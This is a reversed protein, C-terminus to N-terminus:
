SLPLPSPIGSRGGRRGGQLRRWPRGGASGLGASLSHPGRPDAEWPVSCPQSPCASFRSCPILYLIFLLLLFSVLSCTALPLCVSLLRSTSRTLAATLFPEAQRDPCTRQVRIRSNQTEEFLSRPLSHGFSASHLSTLLCTHLSNRAEQSSCCLRPHRGRGVQGRDSHESGPSHGRGCAYAFLPPVRGGGRLGSPWPLVLFESSHLEDGLCVCTKVRVVPHRGGLDAPLCAPRPGHEVKFTLFSLSIPFSTGLAANETLRSSQKPGSQAQVRVEWPVGARDWAPGSHGRVSGWVVRALLDSPGRRRKLM